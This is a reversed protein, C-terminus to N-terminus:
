LPLSSLINLHVFVRDRFMQAVKPIFFSSTFSADERVRELRLLQIKNYQHSDLKMGLKDFLM